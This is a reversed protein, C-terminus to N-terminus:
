SELFVRQAELEEPVDDGRSRFRQCVAQLHNVKQANRVKYAELMEKYLPNAALKTRIEASFPCHMFLIARAVKNLRPSGNGEFQIWTVYDGVFMEKYSNKAKQLATKVKDKADASLDSNKRYFQAYDCYESTLSRESIDNWRVGQIRRCMEWRYEGTLRVLTDTIDEMHFAALFMRAPSNRKKGEIEQWMVGRNGVCPTLIVDPLIEVQIPERVINHPPSSFNTERYYASYDISRIMQLANEVAEETVFANEISKFVTHASFVPCFTTIRGYTIKNVTPFANELEFNVWEMPDNLMRGEEEASIQGKNKLERLHAPYDNDFENRSPEKDGNYIALLWQYFTYVHGQPKKPLRYALPYLKMANEMGALEEDMYGFHLFMLVPVPISDDKLSNKFAATYIPYFAKSIRLRLSRCSDDTSNKDPLGKYEALLGRFEDGADKSIGSYSLIRGLSDKLEAANAEISNEEETGALELSRGFADLREQLLEQNIYSSSKLQDTLSNMSCVADQMDAEAKKLSIQLSAFLEFLDAFDKNLMIAYYQRLCDDIRQCAEVARRIDRSAQLMFGESLASSSLFAYKIANTANFDAYYPALFSDPDDEQSPTFSEELAPLSKAPINNRRCLEKYADYQAHLSTYLTEAQRAANTYAGFLAAAQRASSYLFFHTIEPIKLLAKLDSLQRYPYTGTQTDEVTEYTLSHVGYYLDCLGLVDGKGLYLEGGPFYARVKGGAIIHLNEIPQGAQYLIIGKKTEKAAM